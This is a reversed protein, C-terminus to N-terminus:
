ACVAADASWRNFVAQEERALRDRTDRWLQEWALPDRLVSAPRAKSRAVFGPFFDRGTAQGIAQRLQVRHVPARRSQLIEALRLVEHGAM